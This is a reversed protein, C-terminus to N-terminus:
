RRRWGLSWLAQLSLVGSLVSTVGLAVLTWVFFLAGTSERINGAVVGGSGAFHISPVATGLLSGLLILLYGARRETLVLTGYLWIVLIPIAMLNSPGGKEMGRVIDDALHVTMLLVSLLSSATLAATRNMM